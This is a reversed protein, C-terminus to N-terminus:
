FSGILGISGSASSTGDTKVSGDVLAEMKLGSGIDASLGVGAYVGFASTGPATFSTTGTLTGSAFAIPVASNGANAQALVGVKGRVRVDGHDTAGVVKMGNLELRADLVGISQGGVTVTGNGGSVTETYGAVGGFIYSASAAVNVEMDTDSLVPISIGLGPAIFWSSFNASATEQALGVVVRRSSSHNNYGGLLSYTVDFMGMDTNGYVGLVGTDTNITQEGNAVVFGSRAYGGLGGILTDANVQYHSGAVIGGYVNSLAVPASDGSAGGFVKGWWKGGSIPATDLYSLVAAEAAGEASTQRREPAYGSVASDDAAAAASGFGGFQDFIAGQIGSVIDTSLMGLSSAGTPDYIAIGAGVQTDGPVGNNALIAYPRSGAVINAAELGQVTLVSTGFYDSFDLTDNGGNFVVAGFIQSGTQITLKDDNNGFLIAANNGRVTGSNVLSTGQSGGGFVVGFGNTGTITGRNTFSMAGNNSFVGNNSGTITGENLFTSFEGVDVATGGGATITAGKANTFSTITNAWVGDNGASSLTGENLFTTVTGNLEMVRGATASMVGGSRNSLSKIAGDATMVQDHAGITGSNIFTEPASGNFFNVADATNANDPAGEILGQNSFSKVNGEFSVASSSHNPQNLGSGDLNRIVGSSTNTFTDAGAAFRVAQYFQGTLEGSNTFSGVLGQFAVADRTVGVIAGVNDFKSVPGAFSIGETQGTITGGKKNLFSTAGVNFRVASGVINTITKGNVFENVLADFYISPYNHNNSIEGNNVFKGVTSGFGAANHGDGIISGNNEISLVPVGSGVAPNGATNTITSNNILANFQNDLFVGDNDPTNVVVTEASAQSSALAFLVAAGTLVEYRALRWFKDLM